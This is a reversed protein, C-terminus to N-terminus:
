VSGNTEREDTVGLADIVKKETGFKKVLKAWHAEAFESEGAALPKGDGKKAKKDKGIKIAKDSRM